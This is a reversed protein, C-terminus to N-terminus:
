GARPGNPKVVGVADRYLKEWKDRANAELVACLLWCLATARLIYVDDCWMITFTGVLGLLLQFLLPDSKM